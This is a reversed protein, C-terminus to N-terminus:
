AHDRDRREAAGVRGSLSISANRAGPKFVRWPGGHEVPDVEIEETNLEIRAVLEREDHDILDIEYIRGDETEIRVSARIVRSTMVSM